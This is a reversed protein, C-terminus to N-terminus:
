DSTARHSNPDTCDSEAAASEELRMEIAERIWGAKSDGYELEDVIRDHLAGPMPVTVEQKDKM